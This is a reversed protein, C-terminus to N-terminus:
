IAVVSLRSGAPTKEVDIRAPFKDRLEDIHTIVLICAFEDHVANIAEVLKQRGDPDQSGFGEDIVLTRLRAGARRALVQSLALRIAFNVRFKEGGSYNEYPRVGSSDAIKIDLTEILTDQKTKGQRQTEFAIRMEGGTLNELLNNAYEEIEPLARDILLVQIGKRGCAEELQRLMAARQALTTKEAMVKKRDERRVALVAVWQEAATVAKDAAIAEERVRQLEAEATALDGIGAELEQLRARGADHGGRLELARKALRERQRDLELLGDELPKVAAEARLLNQHEEPAAALADRRARAAAFAAPDFGIATLQRQFESLAAREAVAFTQGALQAQAEELAPLGTALWEERRREIEEIQTELRAVRQDLDNLERGVRRAEEAATKLSEHRAQLERWESDDALAQELAALRAPGGSELWGALSTDIDLLRAEARAVMGQRTEREKELITQRKLATELEAIEAGLTKLTASNDRYRDGHQAGEARLDRQVNLRHEETLPQGCLPCDQGAEAELKDLRDKIKDMDLRLRAQEAELGNKQSATETLSQRRSEMEALQARVDELAASAARHSESVQEREREKNGMELALASLQQREMERKHREVELERLRAGTTEWALQQDALEAARRRTAEQNTQLTALQNQLENCRAAEAKIRAERSSLEETREALRSQANAIATQLPHMDQTLQRHAEAKEQWDRLENEAAQWDRQAAVIVERRELLSRYGALEARRQAQAEEVRRRENETEALEATLRRLEERQQDAQTKNQRAVAVLAEQRDRAAAAVILRANAEELARTLEEEKALEANIEVLQRELAVAESEVEKRKDTAREKYGDWVSVGLIEALIEKRKDPTKTTFEDAKGQLLFSANTFVDYNMRLLREIEAQTERTRAETKVQWRGEGDIVGPLYAHFDLETTKGPAKRRIVRYIAGELEFVFTVEAAAKEGAARNVVDDDSKVRSKGFLAWTIGDLITSKGAGNLGSICALQLGRLDLEAVDRYSLFNRLTLHHPIM